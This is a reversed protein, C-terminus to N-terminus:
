SIPNMKIEFIQYENINKGEYFKEVLEIVDKCQFYSVNLGDVGIKKWRVTFYDKSKPVNELWDLIKFLCDAYSEGEECKLLFSENNINNFTWASVKFPKLIMGHENVLSKNYEFHVSRNNDQKITESIKRELDFIQRNM